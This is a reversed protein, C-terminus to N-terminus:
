LVAGDLLAMVAAKCDAASASDLVDLVPWCADEITQQSTPHFTIAESVREWDYVGVFKARDPGFVFRIRRDGIHRFWAGWETGGTAASAFGSLSTDAYGGAYGQMSLWVVEGGMGYEGDAIGECVVDCRAGGDLDM